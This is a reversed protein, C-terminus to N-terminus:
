QTKKARGTVIAREILEHLEREMRKGAEDQKAGLEDQLRGFKDQERGLADEERGAPATGALTQYYTKPSSQPVSIYDLCFLCRNGTKM